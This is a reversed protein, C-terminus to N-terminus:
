APWCRVARGWCRRVVGARTGRGPVADRSGPVAVRSGCCRAAGRRAVGAARRSGVHRATRGRNPYM